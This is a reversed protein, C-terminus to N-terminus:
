LDDSDIWMLHWNRVDQLKDRKLTEDLRKIILYFKFPSKIFGHNFLNYKKRIYNSTMCLLAEVKEEIALKTLSRHLAKVTHSNKNLVMFDLVGLSPVNDKIIKRSISVGLVKDNNRVVSIFYSKGPGRLRWKLFGIDKVLSISVEDQWSTLFESLGNIQEIAQESFVQIHLARNQSFTLISLVGHYLNIGL